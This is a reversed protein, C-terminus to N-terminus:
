FAPNEARLAPLGREMGNSAPHNVSFVTTMQMAFLPRQSSRPFPYLEVPLLQEDGGESELVDSKEKLRIAEDVDDKRKTLLHASDEPGLSSRRHPRDM